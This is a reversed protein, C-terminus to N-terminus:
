REDPFGRDLKKIGVLAFRQLRKQLKLFVQGCGGRTGCQFTAAMFNM